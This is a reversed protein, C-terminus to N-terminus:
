TYSKKTKLLVFNKLIKRSNYEILHSSFQIIMQHNFFDAVFGM